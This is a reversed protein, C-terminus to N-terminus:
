VQVSESSNWDPGVFQIYCLLVQKLIQPLEYQGIGTEEQNCSEPFLKKLLGALAGIRSISPFFIISATM